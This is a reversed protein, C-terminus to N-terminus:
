MQHQQQLQSITELIKGTVNHKKHNQINKIYKLHASSETSSNKKSANKQM